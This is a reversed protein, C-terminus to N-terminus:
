HAIQVPRDGVDREIDTEVVQRVEVSLEKRLLAHRRRPEAVKVKEALTRGEGVRGNRFALASANVAM